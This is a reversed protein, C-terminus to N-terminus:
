KALAKDLPKHMYKIMNGYVEKRFPPLAMMIRMMRRAIRMGWRKQPFDYFGAKKYYRHDNRFIGGLWVFDRFLKRGAVERFTRAPQRDESIAQHLEAAADALGRSLIEPEHENTVIGALCLGGLEATSRILEELTALRSLPGDVLWVAKKGKLFPVHNFVFSRDSFTKQLSSFARGETRWAYVLGDAPACKALLFEKFGDQYTCTNDWGCRCCGLCGGKLGIDHINIVEVHDPSALIFTEIMLALSRDEPRADTLLTVRRGTSKDARPGAAPLTGRHALPPATVRPLFRGAAVAASFGRFFALTNDRGAKKMLTEMAASYGPYWPMGLDEASERIVAHATHDFFNISTTVATAPKGALAACWEPSRRVLELFRVLQAPLWLYYVPFTWIVADAARVAELWEQKLEPERDLQGCAPGVSITDFSIDPNHKAFLTILRQTVSVAAPKPSSNIALIKM